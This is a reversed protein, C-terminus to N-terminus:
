TEFFQKQGAGLISEAIIFIVGLITPSGIDSLKALNNKSITFAPNECGLFCSPPFKDLFNFRVFSFVSFAGFLIVVILILYKKQM